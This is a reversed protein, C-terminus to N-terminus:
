QCPYNQCHLEWQGEDDVMERDVDDLETYGELLMVHFGRSEDGVVDELDDQGQELTADLL